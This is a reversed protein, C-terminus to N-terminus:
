ARLLDFLREVAGAVARELLRDGVRHDLIQRRHALAVVLQAGVLRRELPDEGLAGLLGARDGDSVM